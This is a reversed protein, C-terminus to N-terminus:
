DCYDVNRGESAEQLLSVRYNGGLVLDTLCGVLGETYKNMSQHRPDELGGIYLGDNINLQRLKGPAVGTVPPGDDVALSAEQENRFFHVHHWRGDNIATINYAITTQGSGLSFSATVFGNRLGVSIFDSASTMWKRGAWLLLGRSVSTRVRFSLSLKWGSIRKVVRPHSFRLYSDGIFRPATIIDEKDMRTQCFPDRYGLPCHCKFADLQPICDGGHDCPNRLCPHACNELNVGSMAIGHNTVTKRECGVVLLLHRQSCSVKQICGSFGGHVKVKPSLWQPDPIGGLFLNHPLSL